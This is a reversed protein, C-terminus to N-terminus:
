EILTDALRRELSRWSWGQVSLVLLFILGALQVVRVRETTMEATAGARTSWAGDFVAMTILPLSAPLAWFRFAEASAWSSADAAWPLLAIGAGSVSAMAAAVTLRSTSARNQRVQQQAFLTFAGGITAGSLALLPRGLVSYRFTAVLNPLLQD